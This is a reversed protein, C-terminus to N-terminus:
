KWHVTEFIYQTTEGFGTDDDYFLATRNKKFGTCATDDDCKEMKPPCEVAYHWNSMWGLFIKERGSNSFTVGAYEDAGYDLWRTLTVHSIFQHGDFGGLFYQTASGGKPGGPNISVILVWIEKGHVIFPILDPCEWVGGHGGVGSGFECEKKWEKLDPLIFRSATM